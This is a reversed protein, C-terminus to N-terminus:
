RDRDLGGVAAPSALRSLGVRHDPPPVDDAVSGAAARGTAASSCCSLVIVLIFPVASKLGTLNSLFDPLFDDSYGAVLNQVM